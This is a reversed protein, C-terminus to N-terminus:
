RKGRMTNVLKKVDARWSLVRDTLAPPAEVAVVPKVRFTKCSSGRNHAPCAPVVYWKTHLLAAATPGSAIKVHGGSVDTRNCGEACCMLAGQIRYTTNVHDKYYVVWSKGKAGPPKAVGGTGLLNVVTTGASLFRVTPAEPGPAPNPLPRPM